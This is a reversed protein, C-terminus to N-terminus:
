GRPRAKRWRRQARPASPSKWSLEFALNPQPADLGAAKNEGITNGSFGLTKCPNGFTVVRLRRAVNAM